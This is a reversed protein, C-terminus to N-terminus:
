AMDRQAVPEGNALELAVLAFVMVWGGFRPKDHQRVQKKM